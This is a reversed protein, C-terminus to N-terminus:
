RGAPSQCRAGDEKPTSRPLLMSRAWSHVLPCAAPCPDRGAGHVRWWTDCRLVGLFRRAWDRPAVLDGWPAQAAASPARPPPAFEPPPPCPLQLHKLGGGGGLFHRHQAHALLFESTRLWVRESPAQLGRNGPRIGRCPSGGPAQPTRVGQPGSGWPFWAWINWWSGPSVVFHLSASAHAGTPREAAAPPGPREAPHAQREQPEFCRRVNLWRTWMGVSLLSCPCTM